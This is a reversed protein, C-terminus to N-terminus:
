KKGEKRKKELLELYFIYFCLVFCLIIIIIIFFFIFFFMLLHTPERTFQHPLIRTECHRFSMTESPKYFGLFFENQLRRKERKGKEGEKSTLM